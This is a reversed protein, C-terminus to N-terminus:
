SIYIDFITPKCKELYTHLKKQWKNSLTMYRSFQHGQRAQCNRVDGILWSLPYGINGIDKVTILNIKCFLHLHDETNYETCWEKTKKKFLTSYKSYFDYFKIMKTAAERDLGFVTDWIFKDNLDYSYLTNPSISEPINMDCCYLIDPRTKIVFDYQFHNEVEYRSMEELCIQLERFNEMWGIRDQLILDESQNAIYGRYTERINLYKLNSKFTSRLYRTTNTVNKLPVIIYQNVVTGTDIRPKISNCDQTCIYIDFTHKPKSLIYEELSEQCFELSRLQGCMLVAIRM